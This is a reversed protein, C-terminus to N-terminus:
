QCTSSPGDSDPTDLMTTTALYQQMSEGTQRSLPGGPRCHQRFLEKSEHETLPFVLGRMHQILTDIGQPIGDFIECLNDFRVEQGAVLADGRVGDCVKSMAEIYQDGTKGASRQRIRFEWEHFSAEDGYYIYAGLADGRVGDCVKSMAEIYQDGTKGASRQPTM